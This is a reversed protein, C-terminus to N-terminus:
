VNQAKATAELDEVTIEYGSELNPVGKLKAIDLLVGRSVIKDAWQHVSLNKPAGRAISPADFNNYMRGDWTCHGLEDWQTSFQSHMVLMDDTFGIGGEKSFATVHTMNHQFTRGPWGPAESTLDIALNFVAGKRILKGAALVKQPTIYNLTGLQDEKGWKGWNTGFPAAAFAISVCAVITTVLVLLFIKEHSIGGKATQQCGFVSYKSSVM